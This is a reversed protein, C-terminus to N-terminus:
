NMVRKKQKTRRRDYFEDLLGSTEMIDLFSINQHNRHEIDAGHSLLIEYIDWFVGRFTSLILPTDGDKDPTNLLDISEGHEFLYQIVNFDGALAAQGIPYIGNSNCVKVDRNKQEILWRVAEVGGTSAAINLPDNGFKDKDDINLGKELLFEMTNIHGEYAAELLITANSNLSRVFFDQKYKTHLHELMENQGGSAAMFMINGGYKNLEDISSGHEILWDVIQINGHFSAMLLPTNKEEDEDKVTATNTELLREVELINGQEIAHFIPSTM